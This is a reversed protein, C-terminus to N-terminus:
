AEASNPSSRTLLPVRTAMPMTKRRHQQGHDVNGIMLEITRTRHPIYIGGHSMNRLKRRLDLSIPLRRAASVRSALRSQPRGIDARPRQRGVHATDTADYHSHDARRVGLQAHHTIRRPTLGAHSIPRYPLDVRPRGTGSCRYNDAATKWGTWDTTQVIHRLYSESVRGRRM